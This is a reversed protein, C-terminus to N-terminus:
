TSKKNNKFLLSIPQSYSAAFVAGTLINDIAGLLEAVPDSITIDFVLHLGLLMLTSIVFTPRAWATFTLLGYLSTAYTILAVCTIAAVLVFSDERIVAEPNITDLHAYLTDVLPDQWWLFQIVQLAMVLLPSVVLIKFQM